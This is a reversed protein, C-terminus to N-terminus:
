ICKSDVVLPTIYNSAGKYRFILCIKLNVNVFEIQEGCFGDILGSCQSWGDMMSDSRSMRLSGQM